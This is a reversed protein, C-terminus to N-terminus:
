QENRTGRIEQMTPAGNYLIEGNYFVPVLACVSDALFDSVLGVSYQKTKTNFWTTVKGRKSRKGPDTIPDKYVDRDIYTYGDNEYGDSMNDEELTISSCKIAFKQTDRTFNVLGGGMGFVFNEAAFLTRNPSDHDTFWQLVENIGYIDIGDGWLLGFDRFEHKIDNREIPRLKNAVMITLIKSLVELPEGSDPRLVLKQHLRSEILTRIRSDPATCFNTFNYVDYSDAVVSIITADPKSLILDYVFQEEHERGYSTTTSHESADVSFGSMDINYYKKCFALSNFNDTGKFVTSHAFGALAASEVSSNGRDSFNHLAFEAWEPSGYKLLMQKIYYSETAVTIPFWLKMLLTEVFSAVWPALPVRADTSEITLLPHGTPVLTGEPVAHISIPLKGKLDTAIYMWGDYDFSVGHLKAMAAAKEVHKPKVRKSLYKQLYYSTGAMITAPHRGGRSEMFEYQSIMNSPYQSPHSLKYSDTLLILNM